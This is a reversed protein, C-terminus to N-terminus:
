RIQCYFALCVMVEMLSIPGSKIVSIFSRSASKMKFAKMLIWSLLGMLLWALAALIIREAIYQM